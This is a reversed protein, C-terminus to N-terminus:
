GGGSEGMVWQLGKEAQNRNIWNNIQNISGIVLANCLVGDVLVQGRPQGVVQGGSVGLGMFSEQGKTAPEQM